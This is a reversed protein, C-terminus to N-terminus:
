PGSAQSRDPIVRLCNRTDFEKWLCQRDTVVERAWKEVMFSENLSRFTPSYFQSISCECVASQGM